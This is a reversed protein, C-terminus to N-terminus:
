VNLVLLQCQEFTVNVFSVHQFCVNELQRNSLTCDKFQCNTYFSEHGIDDFNATSLQNPIRPQAIKILSNM